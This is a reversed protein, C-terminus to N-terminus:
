ESSLGVEKVESLSVRRKWVPKRPRPRVRERGRETIEPGKARAKM